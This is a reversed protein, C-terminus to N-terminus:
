RRLDASTRLCASGATVRDAQVSKNHSATTAGSGHQRSFPPMAQSAALRTRVGAARDGAVYRSVSVGAGFPAACRRVEGLGHSCGQGVGVRRFQSGDSRSVAVGLLASMGHVVAAEIKSMRGWHWMVDSIVPPCYGPSARRFVDTDIARNSTLKV